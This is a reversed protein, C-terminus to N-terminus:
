SKSRHKQTQVRCFEALTDLCDQEYITGGLPFFAYRRWQAYWRIDGLNVNCRDLVKWINTKGSKSKSRYSFRIWDKSRGM